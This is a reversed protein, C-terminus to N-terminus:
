VVTKYLDLIEFGVGGTYGEYGGVEGRSGCAWPM